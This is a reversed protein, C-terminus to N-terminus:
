IVTATLRSDFLLLQTKALITNMEAFSAYERMEFCFLLQHILFMM